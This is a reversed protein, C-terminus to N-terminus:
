QQRIQWTVLDGYGPGFEAGLWKLWRSAGRNHRACHGVIIKHKKLMEALVERSRRALAFKPVSPFTHLWLYAKDSLLSPTILGWVCALNGDVNAIWCHSSLQVCHHLPTGNWHEGWEGAQVLKIEIM